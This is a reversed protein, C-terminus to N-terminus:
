KLLDVVKAGEVLRRLAGSGYREGIARSSIGSTALTPMQRDYRQGLLHMVIPTSGTAAAHGGAVGLEDVVLVPAFLCREFLEHRYQRQEDILAAETTWVVSPLGTIEEGAELDDRVRRVAQRICAVIGSSKGGYAKGCVLLGQSPRYSSGHREWPSWGRLEAVLSLNCRRVWDENDWKAFPWNPLAKALGQRWEDVRIRRWEIARRKAEDDTPAEGALRLLLAQFDQEGQDM